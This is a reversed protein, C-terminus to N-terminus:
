YPDEVTDVANKIAHLTMKKVELKDEKAGHNWPLLRFEEALRMCEPVNEPSVFDVAVKICSKLNRVQHPCGAPIFVAEGLGQVFTWPEIEYEEKLKRKHEFTLYFSQDHIPHSVQKVRNCYLHRFELFHKRLYEQLKPVDERRFIDWLAGGDSRSYSDSASADCEKGAGTNNVCCDENEKKDEAMHRKKLEKIMELQTDKLPVEFVHTLINVADSMDCHLKTVSDGRGLEEAHGYAIYTKPGLDPKLSKPPLKTALNLFGRKLNTYQQYPLSSIFEACHRPLREEFMNSPPWDKLKHMKPWMNPHMVGESYGRFFSAINVEVECWDLCDVATVDLHAENKMVRSDARERLARSMVSPDWSIGSALEKAKRVIVPQGKCWHMRFHKLDGHQIDTATPCYIYNDDAERSAAIRFNDGDIDADGVSNSCSCQETATVPDDFINFRTAIEDANKELESVWNEELICKLKLLGGCLGCSISCNDMAKWASTIKVHGDLEPKENISKVCKEADLKAKSRATGKVPEEPEAHMYRYGKNVFKATVEKEDVQISGDRIERCCTLCLDYNCAPCSRHYDVISTKCNNYIINCTNSVLIKESDLHSLFLLLILILSCMSDVLKNMPFQLLHPGLPAMERCIGWTQCRSICHKCFRKKPCVKCRIVEGRDNRQCQHCMNSEQVEGDDVCKKKKGEKILKRRNVTNSVNQERPLSTKDTYTGAPKSAARRTSRRLEGELKSKGDHDEEVQKEFGKKSLDGEESKKKQKYRRQYVLWTSKGNSLDEGSEVEKMKSDVDEEEEEKEFGKKSLDGEESKKRKERRKYVLYTSKGNSLEEGSKVQKMKSDVDEKEM